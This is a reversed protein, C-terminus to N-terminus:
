IFIRTFIEKMATKERKDTKCNCKNELVMAEIAIILPM